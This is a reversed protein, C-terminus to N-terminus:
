QQRAPGPLLRGVRHSSDSDLPRGRLDPLGSRDLAVGARDAIGSSIATVLQLGQSGSAIAAGCQVMVYTEENIQVPRGLWSSFDGSDSVGVSLPTLLTANSGPM